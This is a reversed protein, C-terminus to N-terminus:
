QAKEEALWIEAELRQYRADLLDVRTAQAKQSFAETHREHKKLRDVYSELAAIMEAEGAGSARLAEIQRRSWLIFSRDAIGVQGDRSLLDLDKLAQEALALQEKGLTKIATLILAQAGRPSSGALTAWTHGEAWLLLLHARFRVEPDHDKRYRDLLAQRQQADLVVSRTM